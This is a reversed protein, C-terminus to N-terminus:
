NCGLATKCQSVSSAPLSDCVACQQEKTPTGPNESGSPQMLSSYDKFSINAPLEFFTQNASWGTCNYDVKQNLDVSEQVQTAINESASFSTKFGDTAGDMWVYVDESDVIMHAKISTGAATTEFDGRAKGSAIYITGSSTSQTDTFTCQQNDALSMLDRLSKKNSNEDSTATPLPTQSFNAVAKTRLYAGAALVLLIGIVAVIIVGKNMLIM